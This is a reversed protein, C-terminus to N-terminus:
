RKSYRGKAEEVIKELGEIQKAEEWTVPGICMYYISLLFDLLKPWEEDKINSLSITDDITISKNFRKNYGDIASKFIELTAGGIVESIRTVFQFLSLAYPIEVEERKMEIVPKRVQLYLLFMNAIAIISGIFGPLWQISTWTKIPGIPIAFYEVEEYFPTGEFLYGICWHQYLFIFYTALVLFASLVLPKHIIHLSKLLDKCELYSLFLFYFAFLFGFNDLAWFIPNIASISKHMTLDRIYGLQIMIVTIMIYFLLMPAFFKTLRDYPDEERIRERLKLLLLYM